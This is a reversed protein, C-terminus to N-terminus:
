IHILSLNLVAHKNPHVKNWAAWADDDTYKAHSIEHGIVMDCLGPNEAFDWKPMRLIRNKTDFSATDFNGERIEINERCLLRALM